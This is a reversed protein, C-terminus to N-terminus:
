RMDRILVGPQPSFPVFQQGQRQAPPQQAPPQQGQPQGQQRRLQEAQSLLDAFINRSRVQGAWAREFDGFSAPRGGPDRQRQEDQFRGWADAQELRLQAQRRAVEIILANAGPLNQINPFVRELFARDADSFNAAPFGGSGIMGVVLRNIESQAAAGQTALNPDIGLGRLTEPSIGMQQAVAGITSQVGATPGTNLGQLLRELLGLRMMTEPASQFAGEVQARRDGRAQGVRQEEATEGRMDISTSPSGPLYLRGDPGIQAPGSYTAPVGAARREEQTVLNRFGAQMGAPTVLRSEPQGDAGTRTAIINGNVERTQWEAPPRPGIPTLTGRRPDFLFTGDPRQVLQSPAPSMMSQLIPAAYPNDMLGALQERSLRALPNPPPAGMGGPAPQAPTPQGQAPADVFRRTQLQYVEGVTRPTGNPNFFITPNAQAAQPTVVATAPQNPDRQLAALFAPGGAQGLFHTMYLNGPNAEIGARQLIAANENTFAEAARRQQEPNTRGDATLQLEPRRQMLDRWTGDTFQFLGTATSTSARANPNGGSEQAMLRRLYDPTGAAPGAAVQPPTQPAPPQQGAPPLEQREVPAPVAPVFGAPAPQTQPAPAGGGVQGLLLAAAEERQRRERADVSGMELGGMLGQVVRAAGQTWHQVPDTQGGQMLMQIALRRRLDNAPSQGIAPQATATM